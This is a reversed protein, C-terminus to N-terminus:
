SKGAATGSRSDTVAVLIGESDSNATRILLERAGEPTGSMAEIANLILNVAVQQLEVRDGVVEPLGEAFATQVSVQRRAAEAQTLEIVEQIIGNIALRDRRPAKKKILDRIRGIVESARIGNQVVRVLAQRVADLEPPQRDLWRLAAEASAVVATTPQNVEHAISATLQGTVAVRNAHELELQAERYRRESESAAAEARKRESLDLVFAVGRESTENRM